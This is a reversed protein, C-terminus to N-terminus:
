NLKTKTSPTTDARLTGIGLLISDKLRYLFMPLRNNFIINLADGHQIISFCKRSGRFFSLGKKQKKRIKGLKTPLSNIKIWSLATVIFIIFLNYAPSFFRSIFYKHPINLISQYDTHVTFLHSLSHKCGISCSIIMEILLIKCMSIPKRRRKGIM